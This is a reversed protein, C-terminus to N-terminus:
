IHSVLVSGEGEMDQIEYEAGYGLAAVALDRAAQWDSDNGDTTVKVLDAFRKQLAILCATVVVDYPKRATKCFAFLRGADDAQRYSESFVREIYFTEYDNPEAGNYCVGDVDVEPHGRGHGDGLAIGNARAVALIKGVDEAFLMWKEVPLEPARYWYHTYGM